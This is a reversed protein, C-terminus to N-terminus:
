VTIVLLVKLMPETSVAGTLPAAMVVVTVEAGTRVTDALIPVAGPLALPFIETAAPDNLFFFVPAVPRSSESVTGAFVVNTDAVPPPESEAPTTVQDIPESASPAEPETVTVTRTVEGSAFPVTIVLLVKLMSETSVAGTLPAAMVVVTVEAGTRVTDAVSAGSGTVAPPVIVSVSPYALVPFEPAVPTIRDSVTGAVVVNADAVPPPESEAPTTGQVIPESAAPAEPDTWSTTRTLVGSALPLPIVLLVKFISYTSVAGTLPAAM